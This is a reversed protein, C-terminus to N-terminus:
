WRLWSLCGPRGLRDQGDGLRPSAAITRPCAPGSRLWCGAAVIGGLGAVWSPPRLSAESTHKWYKVEPGTLRPSFTMFKKCRPCRRFATLGGCASCKWETAEPRAIGGSGCRRCAWAIGGAVRLEDAM